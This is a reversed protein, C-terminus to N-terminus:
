SKRQPPETRQCKRKQKPESPKEEDNPTPAEYFQM